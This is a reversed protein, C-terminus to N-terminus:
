FYIYQDPWLVTATKNGPKAILQYCFWTVLCGCNRSRVWIVYGMLRGSVVLATYNEYHHVFAVKTKICYKMEWLVQAKLVQHEQEALQHVMTRPNQPWKVSLKKMSEFRIAFKNRQLEVGPWVIVLFKKCMGCYSPHWLLGDTTDHAFNQLFCMQEIQYWFSIQIM